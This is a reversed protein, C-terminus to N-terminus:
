LERIASFSQGFTPIWSSHKGVGGGVVVNIDEVRHVVTLEASEYALEPRDPWRSLFHAFAEPGM